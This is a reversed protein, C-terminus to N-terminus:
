ARGTDGLEVMRAYQPRMPAGVAHWGIWAKKLEEPDRSNAM